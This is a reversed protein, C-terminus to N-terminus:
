KGGRRITANRNMVDLDAGGVVKKFVPEEDARQVELLSPNPKGQYNAKNREAQKLM